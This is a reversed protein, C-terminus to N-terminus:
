EYEIIQSDGNANRKKRKKCIPLVSYLDTAFERYAKPLRKM